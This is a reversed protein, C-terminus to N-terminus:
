VRRGRVESLTPLMNKILSDDTIPANAATGSPAPPDTRNEPETPALGLERRIYASVTLKERAAADEVARKEGGSLRIQIHTDKM